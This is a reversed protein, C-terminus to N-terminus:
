LYRRCLLSFLFLLLLVYPMNEILSVSYGLYVICLVIFSVLAYFILDKQANEGIFRLKGVFSSLALAYYCLILVASVAMGYFSVVFWPDKILAQNEFFHTELKYTSDLQEKLVVPAEPFRLEVSGCPVEIKNQESNDLVIVIRYVGANPRMVEYDGLDFSSVWLDNEQNYIANILASKEHNENVPELYTFIFKHTKTAKFGVHIHNNQNAVLRILGCDDDDVDILDFPQRNSNVKMRVMSISNPRKIEVRKNTLYILNEESAINLLFDSHRVILSKPILIEGKSNIKLDVTEKDLTISASYNPLYNNLKIKCKDFCSKINLQSDFEVVMISLEDKLSEFHLLETKEQLNPKHPSYSIIYKMLYEFQENKLLKPEYKLLRNLIRITVFFTYGENLWAKSSKTVHQLDKLAGKFVSARQKKYKSNKEACVSLLDIAIGTLFFNQDKSDKKSHFRSGTKSKFKIVKECYREQDFSTQDLLSRITLSYYLVLLKDTGLYKDTFGLIEEKDFACDIRNFIKVLYFYDRLTLKQMNYDELRMCTNEMDVEEEYQLVYNYFSKLNKFLFDTQQFKRNLEADCCVLSLLLVLIGLRKGLNKM